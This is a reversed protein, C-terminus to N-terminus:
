VADNMILKVEFNTMIYIAGTNTGLAVQIECAPNQSKAGSNGSGTEIEDPDIFKGACM